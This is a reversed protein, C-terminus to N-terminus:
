FRTLFAASIQWREYEVDNVAKSDVWRVSFDLSNKENIQFNSGLTVVHTKADLRYAFRNAAAGGFADDANIAEAANIVKLYPTATSTVDGDLYNYTLYTTWREGLKYDLNQLLSIESTDFVTGESDRKNFSLIASYVIRDTFPKRVSVGASYLNSDRLKSKYEAIATKVFAAYTPATFVGSARYQYTANAGATVNSLKDYENYFEGRVFGRYVLRNNQNLWQLFSTGVQLSVIQDDLIDVEREARTINDDFTYALEVDIAAARNASCMLLASTAAAFLWGFKGNLPSHILSAGRRQLLDLM